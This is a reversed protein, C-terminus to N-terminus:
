AREIRYWVKWDGLDEPEVAEDGPGFSGVWAEPTGSFIRRYAALRDDPDFTDLEVGSIEVALRDRVVGEFIPVDLDLVNRGPRDSIRFKGRGPLRIERVSADDDPHVRARFRFEGAGKLLPDNDDVIQIRELVIRVNEGAAPGTPDTWEVGPQDALEVFGKGRERRYQLERELIPRWRSDKATSELRRHFLELDRREPEILELAKGVQVNVQFGGLVRRQASGLQLVDVTFKQGARIGFPLEIRLLAALNAGWFAPVPVYTPGGVELRLTHADVAHVTGPAHRLSRLNCIEAAGAQPLYLEARSERPLGNWFFVLEDVGEAAKWLEPDIEWKSAEEEEARRSAAKAELIEPPIWGGGLHGHAEHAPHASWPRAAPRVPRPAAHVHASGQHVHAHNGEHGGHGGHGDAQAHAHHTAPQKKTEVERSRCCHTLDIDFSHQVTRTIPTGPNATHVILLNRQALNDSSGPTSGAVTPDPVHVVEVVMCQHHSVMLDRLSLLGGGFPGDGVFTAPFRPTPQNIDLWAGFYGIAEGGGTAPFDFENLPDTQTDMSVGSGVRPAAFFPITALEDATTRGLRAIGSPATRYALAPDFSVNALGWRFLRFTARVNAAGTQSQLRVRSLAFNYVDVGGVTTAYELYAAGQDVPLAQFSDGGATGAGARLNAIVDAIFANPDTWGAAVGFRAQGEEVRLVRTDTSLWSTPGDLMYPNASVQLRLDPTEHVTRNGSRDTATVVLKMDRLDGPGMGAFAGTGTFTARCRYTIRQPVSPHQGPAEEDAATVTVSVDPVALNTAADRLEVAPAGGLGPYLGAAAPPPAILGYLRPEVEAPWPIPAPRETRDQLIVYFSDDFASTGGSAVAQVQDLSFSSRDLYVTVDPAQKEQVLEIEITEEHDFGDLREFATGAPLAPDFPELTTLSTASGVLAAMRVQGAARILDGQRLLTTFATGSGTVATGSSALTGAAVPVTGDPKQRCVLHGIVRIRSNLFGTATPAFALNDSAFPGKGGGDVTGATGDFVFEEVFDAGQPREDPLAAAGPTIVLDRPPLAIVPATGGAERLVECRLRLELPRTPTILDPRVNVRVRVTGNGTALDAAVIGNSPEVADTSAALDRTITLVRPEFGTDDAKVPAFTTFRPQRKSWVDDIFGHWAYFRPSHNNAVPWVLDGNLTHGPGHYSDDAAGTVSIFPFPNNDTAFYQGMEGLNAFERLTGDFGPRSGDWMNHRPPNFEVTRAVYDVVPYGAGGGMHDLGPPPAPLGGGTTDHGCTNISQVPPQGTRALWRDWLVLHDRHFEFFEAGVQARSVEKKRAHQGVGTRFGPTPQTWPAGVGNPHWVHHVQHFVDTFDQDSLVTGDRDYLPAIPFVPQGLLRRRLDAAWAMFSFYRLSFPAKVEDDMETGGSSFDFFDRLTDYYGRVSSGLDNTTWGAPFPGGQLELPMPPGVAPTSGDNDPFVDQGNWPRVPPLPRPWLARWQAYRALMVDLHHALFQTGTVASGGSSPLLDLTWDLHNDTGPVTGLDAAGLDGYVLSTVFDIQNMPM